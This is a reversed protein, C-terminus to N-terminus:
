GAIALADSLRIHGEYLTRGLIAGHTGQAVLRRIDELTTVGGSCIVPFPSVKELEALATFNPGSMM